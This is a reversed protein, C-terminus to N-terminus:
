RAVFRSTPVIRVKVGEIAAPMSPPAPLAADVYVVIATETTAPDDDVKGVGVGLVGAAGFLEDQHRLKVAAAADVAARPPGALGTDPTEASDSRGAGCHAGAFSFTLGAARFAAIVDQIPNAVTTVDSGAFLLGVPRLGTSVILSGSDGGASFRRPSIVLQNDYSRTFSKGTGCRPQYDVVVRTAISQITGTTVGTTRGSKEVTMGPAAEETEVCPVGLGLIAGSPDVRGSLARAVAADVNHNGIPVWNRNFVAVKHAAAASCNTDVLGPQIIPEGPAALGTRALVHNNGLVQPVGDLLVLAGLTGACCFSSTEDLANGGSTGLQIPLPQKATHGAALSPAAALPALWLAIALIALSRYGPRTKM